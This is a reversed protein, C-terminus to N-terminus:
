QKVRSSSAAIVFPTVTQCLCRGRTEGSCAAPQLPPLESSIPDYEAAVITELPVADKPDPQSGEASGADEPFIPITTSADIRIKPLEFAVPPKEVAATIAASAMGSLTGTDAAGDGTGSTTAFDRSEVSPLSFGISPQNTEHRVTVENAVRRLKAQANQVKPWSSNVAQAAPQSSRQANASPVHNRRLIQWATSVSKDVGASM